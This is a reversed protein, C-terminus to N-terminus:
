SKVAQLVLTNRRIKEISATTGAPLKAEKATLYFESYNPILPMESVISLKTGEVIGEGIIAAQLHQPIQIIHNGGNRQSIRLLKKLLYTILENSTLTLCTIEAVAFLVLLIHPWFLTLLQISM